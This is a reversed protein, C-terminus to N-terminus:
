LDHVFSFYLSDINGTLFHIHFMKSVEPLRSLIYLYFILQLYNSVLGCIAM